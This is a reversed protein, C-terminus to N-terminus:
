AGGAKLPKLGGYMVSIQLVPFSVATTWEKRYHEGWWWRKWASAAYQSGASRTVRGSDIANAQITTAVLSDQAIALVVTLLMASLLITTILIIKLQRM